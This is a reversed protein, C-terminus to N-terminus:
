LDSKKRLSNSCSIKLDISSDETSERDPSLEDCKQFGLRDIFITVMLQVAIIRLVEAESSMKGANLLLHRAM